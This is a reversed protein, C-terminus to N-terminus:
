IASRKKLKRAAKQLGALARDRVTQAVIGWDEVEYQADALALGREFDLLALEYERSHLYLEGRLVYNGAAEPTYEIAMDFDHIRRALSEPNESLAQRIQEWLSVRPKVHLTPVEDAEIPDEVFSAESSEGSMELPQAEGETEQGDVFGTESANPAERDDSVPLFEESM